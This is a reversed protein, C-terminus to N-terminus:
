AYDGHVPCGGYPQEVDRCFCRETVTATDGGMTRLTVTEPEAKGKAVVAHADGGIVLFRNGGLLRRLAPNLAECTQEDAFPVIVVLVDDPGVVAGTVNLNIDQKM